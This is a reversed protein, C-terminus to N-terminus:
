DSTKSLKEEKMQSIITLRKTKDDLSKEYEEKKTKWHFM